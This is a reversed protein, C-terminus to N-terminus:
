VIGLHHKITSKKHVHPKEKATVWGLSLCIVCCNQTWSHCRNRFRDELWGPPPPLDCSHWDNLWARCTHGCYMAIQQRQQRQWQQGPVYRFILWTPWRCRPPFLSGKIVPAPFRQPVKWQCVHGPPSNLRTKRIRQYNNHKSNSQIISILNLSHLKAGLFCRHNFRKSPSIYSVVELDPM